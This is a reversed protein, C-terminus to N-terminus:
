AGHNVAPRRPSLEVHAEMPDRGTAGLGRTTFVLVALSRDPLGYRGVPLFHASFHM